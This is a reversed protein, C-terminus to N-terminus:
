FNPPIDPEFQSLFAQSPPTGASFPPDTIEISPSPPQQFDKYNRKLEGLLYLKAVGPATDPYVEISVRRAGSELYNSVPEMYITQGTSDVM